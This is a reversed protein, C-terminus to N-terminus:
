EVLFAFLFQSFNVQNPCKEFAILDSSFDESNVPGDPLTSYGHGRVDWTIVKFKDKFFEVQKKWQLHNWSAGHTFIIPFGEGRVDYYLKAENSLLEPM